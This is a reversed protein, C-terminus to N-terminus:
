FLSMEAILITGDLDTKKLFVTKEHEKKNTQNKPKKKLVPLKLSMIKDSKNGSRTPKKFVSGYMETALFLGLKPGDSSFRFGTFM